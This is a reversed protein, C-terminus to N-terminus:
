KRKKKKVVKWKYTQNPAVNAVADTATVTFKHKGFSVKKKSFPSTCASPAAKDLACTFTSAESASFTIKVKRKTTKKKPGKKFTTEPATRDVAPTGPGGPAISKSEEIVPRMTADAVRAYVGWKEPDACGIGFSTVGVLRFSGPAGGVLPGGSDGQCTDKGGGPPNGACVMQTPDFLTFYSSADGCDADSVMKLDVTYLDDAYSAPLPPKARNGWGTAYVTDGADWLGREEAAAIPITAAPAPAPTNLEIVAVDWKHLPANYLQPGAPPQTVSQPTPRGGVDVFYIVDSAPIESGATSSLTTRGTIVSFESPQKFANVAAADDFVCHAATLVATSTILSGGCFQRAYGNGGGAPPDAVAVQWPWENITTPSGGIIDVGGGSEAASAACVMGFATTFVLLTIVGLRKM